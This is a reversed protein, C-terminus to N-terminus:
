ARFPKIPARPVGRPRSQNRQVRAGGVRGEAAEDARVVPGAPRRRRRETFLAPLLPCETQAQATSIAIPDPMATPMPWTAAAMLSACNLYAQLHIFISLIAAGNGAPFPDLLLHSLVAELCPRLASTSFLPASLACFAILANVRRM